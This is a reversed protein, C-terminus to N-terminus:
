HENTSFTNVYQKYHLTYLTSNLTSASYHQKRDESKRVTFMDLFNFLGSVNKKTKAIVIDAEHVTDHTWEESSRKYM